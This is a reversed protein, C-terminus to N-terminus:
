KIRYGSGNNKIFDMYTNHLAISEKDDLLRSEKLLSNALVVIDSQNLLEIDSDLHTCDIISENETNKLFVPNETLSYSLVSPSEFNETIAEDIYDDQFASPMTQLIRVERIDYNDISIPIM